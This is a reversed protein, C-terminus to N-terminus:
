RESTGSEELQPPEYKLLYETMEKAEVREALDLTEIQSQDIIDSNPYTVVYPAMSPAEQPSMKTQLKTLSDEVGHLESQINTIQENITPKVAEKVAKARNYDKIVQTRRKNLLTGIDISRDEPLGRRTQGEKKFRAYQQQIAQGEKEYQLLVKTRRGQYATEAM